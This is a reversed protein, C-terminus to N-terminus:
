LPVDYLSVKVPLTSSEESDDSEVMKWTFLAAMILTTAIFFILVWLLCRGTSRGQHFDVKSNHKDSMANGNMDTIDDSFAEPALLETPSTMAAEYHMTKNIVGKEALQTSTEAPTIATANDKEGNAAAVPPKVEGVDAEM